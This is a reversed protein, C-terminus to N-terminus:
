DSRVCHRSCRQPADRMFICWRCCLAFPRLVPVWENHRSGGAAVARSCLMLNRRYRNWHKEGAFVFANIWRRGIGHGHMATKVSQSDDCQTAEGRSAAVCVCLCLKHKSWLLWYAARVNRKLEASNAAPLKILICSLVPFSICIFPFRVVHRWDLALSSLSHQRCIRANILSWLGVVLCMPSEVCVCVCVCARLAIRSVNDRVFAFWLSTSHNRRVASEMCPICHVIFLFQNIAAFNASLSRFPSLIATFYQTENTESPRLQTRM